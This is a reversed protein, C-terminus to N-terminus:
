VAEADQQLVRAAVPLAHTATPLPRPLSSCLGPFTKLLNLHAPQAWAQEPTPQLLWQAGKVDLTEIGAEM